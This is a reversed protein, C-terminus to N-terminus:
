AGQYVTLHRRTPTGNVSGLLVVYQGDYSIAQGQAFHVTLFTSADTSQIVAGNKTINFLGLNATPNTLTYKGTVSIHPPFIYSQLVTELTTLGTGDLHVAYLLVNAQDFGIVWKNATDIAVIESNVNNLLNVSDLDLDTIQTWTSYNGELPTAAATAPQEIRLERM